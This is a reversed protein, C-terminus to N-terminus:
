YEPQPPLQIWIPKFASEDINGTEAWELNFM